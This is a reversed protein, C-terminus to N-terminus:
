AASARDHRLSDIIALLEAGEALRWPLAGADDFSVARREVAGWQVAHAPDLAALLWYLRDTAEDQSVHRSCAVEASRM